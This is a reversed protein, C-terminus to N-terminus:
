YSKKIELKEEVFDMRTKLKNHDEYKVRNMSIDDIRKNVGEFKGSMKEELNKLDEKTAMKAEIKSFSRNISQLLEVNTIKKEKKNIM